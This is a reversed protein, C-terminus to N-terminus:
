TNEVKLSAKNPLLKLNADNLTQRRVCWFHLFIGKIEVSQWETDGRLQGKEEFNLTQHETQESRNRKEAAGDRM